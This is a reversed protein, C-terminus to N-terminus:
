LMLVEGPNLIKLDAELVHGAKLSLLSSVPEGPPEDSLDFTGYHMPIMTASRLDNSATVAEQPSIHNPAMFWSPKYAGIGLIAIDINPFLNAVDRFHTGYGTDGGFYITRRASQITFAGWLRRNTDNGTRKSWHRAPLFCVALSSRTRFQQYWGACQIATSGIWPTLLADMQLGTLVEVQPNFKVIERVSKEQCHDRHDHSILLYDVRGIEAPSLAHRSYRRVFPLDYFVPDIVLVIGGLRLYFTSHGLWVLCDHQEGVFSSDNHVSLRFPDRAKEERQPNRQLKWKLLETVSPEFHYEENVFRDGAEFLNGKWGPRIVPLKYNKVRIASM